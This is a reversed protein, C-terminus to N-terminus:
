TSSAAVRLREEQDPTVPLGGRLVEEVVEPPFMDRLDDPGYGVPPFEIRKVGVRGADSTVTIVAPDAGGSQLSAHDGTTYAGCEVWLYLVEEDAAGGPAAATGLKNMGCLVLGQPDAVGLLYGRVEPASALQSLVQADFADDPSPTVAASSPVSTDITSTDEAVPTDTEDGGGWVSTAGFVACAGLGLTATAIGVRARARHRQIVDVRGKIGAIDPTATATGASHRRLTAEIQADFPDTV